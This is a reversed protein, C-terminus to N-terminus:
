FPTGVQKKNPYKFYVSKTNGIILALGYNKLGNYFDSIIYFETDRSDYM